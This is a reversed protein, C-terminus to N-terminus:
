VEATLSSGAATRSSGAATRSSLGGGTDRNSAHAHAATNAITTTATSNGGFDYTALKAFADDLRAKFDAAVPSEQALLLTSTASFMLAAALVVLFVRRRPM